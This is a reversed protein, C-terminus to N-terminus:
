MDALYASADWDPQDSQVDPHDTQMGDIEKVISTAKPRSGPDTRWCDTMLRRMGVPTQPPPEPHQNEVVVIHYLGYEEVDEFPIQKAYIEYCVCGFAYVDSEQSMASRRGAKLLEPALWRTAGVQRGSMNSLGRLRQSDVVRSLGFDTIRATQDAGILVNHGKLDGHTIKLGHLYVLGQAVDKALKQQSAPDVEHEELFHLLNGNEMWPSVLCIEGQEKNFWYMGTFPLINPHNLTRWIMAEKIFAKLQQEYKQSDLRDWVVKVAVKVGDRKGEYIDAFGGRFVPRKSLEEVGTIELCQPFLGANGSLQTMAGLLQSRLDADEVHESMLQWNDLADQAQNGALRMVQQYRAQNAVLGKFSKAKKALEEASFPKGSSQANAINAIGARPRPTHTPEHQEKRGSNEFPTQAPPPSAKEVREDNNITYNGSSNNANHDRGMNVNQTGERNNNNSHGYGSPSHYAQRPNWPGKNNVTMGGPGNNFNQDRGHNINQTGTSNNNNQAGSGSQHNNIQTGHVSSINAYDRNNNRSYAM